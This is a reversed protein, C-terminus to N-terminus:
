MTQIVLERDVLPAAAVIPAGTGPEAEAEIAIQATMWGKSIYFNVPKSLPAAEKFGISAFQGTESKVGHTMVDQLLISKTTM